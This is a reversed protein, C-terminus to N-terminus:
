SQVANMAGVRLEESRASTSCSATWRPRRRSRCTAQKVQLERGRPPGRESSIPRKKRGHFPCSQHTNNSNRTSNTGTFSSANNGLRSTRVPWQVGPTRIPGLRHRGSARNGHTLMCSTLHADGESPNISHFAEIWTSCSSSELGKRFFVCTPDNQGGDRRV